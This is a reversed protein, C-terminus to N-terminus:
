YSAKDLEEVLMKFAQEESDVRFALVLNGPGAGTPILVAQAFKGDQDFQLDYKRGSNTTHFGISKLAL